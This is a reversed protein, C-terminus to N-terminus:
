AKDPKNASWHDTFLAYFSPDRATAGRQGVVASAFSQARELSTGLPWGRLLGLLMVATMADGAGVTDVVTVNREPRVSWHAGGATLVEAGNKGHTLLLGQLGHERLFSWAV